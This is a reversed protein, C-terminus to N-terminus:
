LIENPYLRQLQWGRRTGKYPLNACIGWLDDSSMDTYKGIHPLRRMFIENVTRLMQFTLEPEAEVENGMDEYNIM